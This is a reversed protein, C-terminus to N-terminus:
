DNIVGERQWDKNYIRNNKVFYVTKYDKDRVRYYSGEARAPFDSLVLGLAIIVMGLLVALVKGM